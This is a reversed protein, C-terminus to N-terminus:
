SCERGHGQREVSDDDDVQRLVDGTREARLREAIHAGVHDLDLTGAAAVVRARPGRGVPAALARQEHRQVAVLLAQGEVELALAAELDELAEDRAGVDEDLAQAGADDLLQSEIERAGRPQVRTQDVARDGREPGAAGGATKRRSASASSAVCTAASGRKASLGERTRWRSASTASMAARVRCSFVVSRSSRSRAAPTGDAGIRLTSRTRSSGCVAALPM